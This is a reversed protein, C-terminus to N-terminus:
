DKLHNEVSNHNVSAFRGLCGREERGVGYHETEARGIQQMAFDSEHANVPISCFHMELCIGITRRVQWAGCGAMGGPLDHFLQHVKANSPHCQRVGSEIPVILWYVQIETGSFHREKQAEPATGV